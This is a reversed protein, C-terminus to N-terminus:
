DKCVHKWFLIFLFAYCTWMIQALIKVGSTQIDGVPYNKAHFGKELDFMSSDMMGIRVFFLVIAITSVNKAPWHFGM